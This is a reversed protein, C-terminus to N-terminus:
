LNMKLIFVEILKLIKLMYTLINQSFIKKLKKLIQKPKLLLKVFIKNLKEISSNSMNINLVPIYVTALFEKKNLINPDTTEIIFSLIQSKKLNRTNM